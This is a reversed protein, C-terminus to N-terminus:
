RIVEFVNRKVHFINEQEFVKVAKRDQGLIPDQILIFSNPQMTIGEQITGNINAQIYGDINSFVIQNKNIIQETQPITKYTGFYLVVLAVITLLSIILKKM